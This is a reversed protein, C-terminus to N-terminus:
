FEDFSDQEFEAFCAVYFGLAAFEATVEQGFRHFGDSHPFQDAKDITAEGGDSTGAFSFVGAAGAGVFFM